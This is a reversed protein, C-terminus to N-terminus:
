EELGDSKVAVKQAIPAKTPKENKVMKTKKATCSKAKGSTLKSSGNCSLSKTGFSVESVKAFPNTLESTTAVKTSTKNNCVKQCAAKQAPTCTKATKCTKQCVTKQAPTCTSQANLNSIGVAFFMMSFVFLLKKM